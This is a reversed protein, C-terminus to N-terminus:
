VIQSHPKAKLAPLEVHFSRLECNEFWVFKEEGEYEVNLVNLFMAQLYASHTVVIINEEQRTAVWNFFDLARKNMSEDPERCDPFLPYLPDHEHEIEDFNVHPFVPRHESIPLRNDCPHQGAKERLAELALFPTKGIHHRFCETATQLTRRMPSVVILDADHLHQKEVLTSNLKACQEMGLSSLVSDLYDDKLYNVRDAEGAVNHEGQAHRVFHLRKAM